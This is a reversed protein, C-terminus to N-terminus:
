RQMSVYLANNGSRLDKGYSFAVTVGFVRFKTQIGTDWLWKRSGLGNVPDTIKGADLFPGLKITLLGNSYVNKDVEWNSLFYNRGMPASGKRGDRTAIHGRLWLDNDREVGLMSLEDFPLDGFTKGARVQTAFEYDNGEAQPFWHLRLAPQLKIFSQGPNSWLRGLEYGATGALTFRREPIRLLEVTVQSLQKLQYGEKLLTSSLAMGPVADRFDRHSLEASVSWNWRGSEVSLFNASVSERRMNFGGLLSAPGTFSTLVDWNESRLDATLEYRYKPSRFLPGSVSALARRKQADWRLLSVLNIDKGGLNFYEPYITQFPLGRFVRFLAEYKTDGWGNLERNRFLVDFNGEAQAELDLHYSSFIGLARLRQESTSFESETLVSAPAFAFAHDLLVPDLRPRPATRIQQIYPKNVRNWYKLAAPVNGELFYVTGLFDHAYKDNPDLALARRMEKAAISYQKQRFAVGALEEPFRKDSGHQKRGAEFAARADSWRGLHSFATGKLFYLDPTTQASRDITDIVEQWRKGEALQQVQSLLTSSASSQGPLLSPCLFFALCAILPWCHRSRGASDM